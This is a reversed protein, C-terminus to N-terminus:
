FFKQRYEVVDPREHGDVYVGKQYWQFHFGLKHMWRCATRVSIYQVFENNLLPLIEQEFYSKVMIPDVNFKISHLYSAVQLSVFEDHLLSKSSFRGWLDPQILEKKM